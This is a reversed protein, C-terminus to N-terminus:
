KIPATLGGCVHGPQDHGGPCPRTSEDDPLPREDADLHDRDEDDPHFTREIEVVTFITGAVFVPDMEGEAEEINPFDETAVLNNYESIIRRGLGVDFDPDNPDEVNEILADEVLQIFPAHPGDEEFHMGAHVQAYLTIMDIISGCEGACTAEMSGNEPDDGPYRTVRRDGCKPCFKIEEDHM